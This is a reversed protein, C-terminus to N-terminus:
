VGAVAIPVYAFVLRIVLLIGIALFAVTVAAASWGRRSRGRRAALWIGALAAAGGAEFWTRTLLHLVVATLGALVVALTRLRVATRLTRDAANM